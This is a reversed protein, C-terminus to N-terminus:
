KYFEEVLPPLMRGPNFTTGDKWYQRDCASDAPPADLAGVIAYDDGRRVRVVIPNGPEPPGSPWVTSVDEASVTRDGVVHAELYLRVVVSGDPNWARLQAGRWYEDGRDLVVVPPRQRRSRNTPLSM